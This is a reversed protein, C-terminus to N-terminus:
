GETGTALAVVHGGRSGRIRMTLRHMASVSTEKFLHGYLDLTIQSSAHGLQRSVYKINEGHSILM